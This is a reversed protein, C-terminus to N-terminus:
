LKYYKSENNIREFYLEFFDFIKEHVYNINRINNTGSSISLILQADDSIYKHFEETLKESQEPVDFMPITIMVQTYLLTNLNSKVKGPPKRFADNGFLLNSLELGKYYDNLLLEIESNDMSNLKTLVNDLLRTSSGNYDLTKDMQTFYAGFYRLIFEHHAFRNPNVSNFILKKFHENDEIKRYITRLQESTVSNRVEQGSLPKGRTNLRKFIDLKVKDPTKEDIVYAQINYDRFSRKFRTPIVESEKVSKYRKGNLDTLYEMGSLRLEGSMFSSIANLRQLGDAPLYTKDETRNLYIAPIPINLLMSEVLLSKDKNTWVFNRQFDPSLDISPEEEGEFGTIYNYLTLSSFAKVSYDIDDPNYPEIIIDTEEQSETDEVGSTLSETYMELTVSYLEKVQVVILEKDEQNLNDTQTLISSLEDNVAEIGKFNEIISGEQADQMIIIDEEYAISRDHYESFIKIRIAISNENQVKSVTYKM